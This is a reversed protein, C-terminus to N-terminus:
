ELIKGKKEERFRSLSHSVNQLLVEPAIKEKTMDELASSIHKEMEEMVSIQEELHHVSHALDDSKSDFGEDQNTQDSVMEEM